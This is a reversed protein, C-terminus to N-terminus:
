RAGSSHCLRCPMSSFSLRSSFGAPHPNGGVGGVRHCSVCLQEGAGGHCSACSAPDKRAERGHRNEASTPGVWGPPHPTSRNEGAIGKAIHCSACRDPQHCTNCSGPESKAELSHRSAFGGRHVSPTFPNAFRQTAPLAAVAQGHCSACFQERHCSSCVEGSSAARLGHERIWDADHALHSQPLTDTAELNKHCADCKSANSAADQDHCRFCTAMPPRLDRDGEAIGVHCRVCNGNTPAQHQGHDFVLHARAEVLEPLANEEAHCGLCPRTDHPKTHCSICSEDDPIHLTQGDDKDIGVHCKTCTVGAIVHKRHPFPQPGSKSLGLVGACAGLVIIVLAIVIRKM